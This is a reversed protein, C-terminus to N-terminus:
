NGRATLGTACRCNPHAPPALHGGPFTGDLTATAGNLAKCIPCRREDPTTIWVRRDRAGLLGQARAQLWAQRQGENAAAITETRAITDARQSLLRAAYRDAARDVAEQLRGQALLREQLALVADAQLGTLGVSNRIQRAADRPTVTGSVARAIIRRVAARSKETVDVVLAGARDRAWRVAEPNARDFRMEPPLGSASGAGDAMAEEIVQQMGRPAKAAARLAQGDGEDGLLRADMEAFADDLLGEAQMFHGAALRDALVGVPVADRAASVAQM